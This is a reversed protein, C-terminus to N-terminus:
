HYWPTVHIATVCGAVCAVSTDTAYMCGTDHGSMDVPRTVQSLDVATEVAAAYRSAKEDDEPHNPSGSHVEAAGEEAATAEETEHVIALLAAQLAGVSEFLEEGGSTGILQPRILIPPTVPVM